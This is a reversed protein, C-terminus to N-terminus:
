DGESHIFQLNYKSTDYKKSNLKFYTGGISQYIHKVNFIEIYRGVKIDWLMVNM